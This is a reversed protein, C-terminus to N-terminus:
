DPATRLRHYEYTISELIHGLEISHPMHIAQNALLTEPQPDQMMLAASDSTM